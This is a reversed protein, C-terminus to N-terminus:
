IRFDRHLTFLPPHHDIRNHYAFPTLRISHLETLVFAHDTFDILAFFNIIPAEEKHETEDKEKLLLPIFISSHQAHLTFGHHEDSEIGAQTVVSMFVPSVFQFVLALLVIRM